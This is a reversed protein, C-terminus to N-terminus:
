KVLGMKSFLGTIYNKINMFTSVYYFTNSLKKLYYKNENNTIHMHIEEKCKEIANAAEELAYGKEVLGNLTYLALGRIEKNNINMGEVAAQTAEDYMKWNKNNVENNLLRLYLVFYISSKTSDYATKLFHISDQLTLHKLSKAQGFLWAGDGSISERCLNKLVEVVNQTKEDSTCNWRLELEQDRFHYPKNLKCINLSEIMDAYITGILWRDRAEGYFTQQMVMQKTTTDYILEVQASHNDLPMNYKFRVEKGAIVIGTRHVPKDLMKIPMFSIAKKLAKPLIAQEVLENSYIQNNLNSIVAILNQHILTFFDELTEPLHRKFDTLSGLTAAGVSFNPSSDLSGGADAQLYDFIKTMKNLYVDLPWSYLTPITLQPGLQQIWNSLLSFYPTLMEKFLVIKEEKPWARSGKMQKIAGDFLDVASLMTNYILICVVPSETKLLMQTQSLDAIIDQLNTWAQGFPQKESFSEIKAKAYEIASILAVTKKITAEDRASISNLVKELIADSTESSSTGSSVNKFFFALWAPFMGSEQILKAIQKLSKVQSEIVDGSIIRFELDELFEQWQRKSKGTIANHGALYIDAFHVPHSFKKQYDVLAMADQLLPEADIMSYKSLTDGQASNSTLLTELVKVHILPRLQASDPTRKLVAKVEKFAADVKKDLALLVSNIAAVEPIVTYNALASVGSKIATVWNTKKLGKLKELAIQHTTASRVAVILEKVEQPVEKSVTKPRPAEKVPLSITIKAPHVAFGKVIFEKVDVKEDWLYAVGTQMDVVIPTESSAKKIIEQIKVNMLICPTGMNSFNVVPHSNVPEPTTVIVIHHKGTLFSEEAEKLTKTSQIQDPNTIVAVSATGPVLVEGDMEELIPKASLAAVKKLDLYTPLLDPRNVPRSQVPYITNGKIIIEM